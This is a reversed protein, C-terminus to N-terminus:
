IKPLPRRPPAMLLVLLSPLLTLNALLALAMALATLVGFLITPVFNSLCLVSFGVIITMSTFYMARGITGHSWAVALRVDGERAYEEQFRHLYHIADDVGIGVSIAAITITMMDLPIGAYGMIGIVSAASLVNPVLGLIAYRVSRLLVLFMLFTALLVYGITDVQSRFLQKLMRDFLVMMGTVEVAGPALGLQRVAFQEVDTALQARDFAPGTEIIRANLRLEGTAPSAYPEILESRLEEPLLGLVAAVEVSTLQEGDKFRAGLRDLTTLSMVKGVVEHQEVFRHLRALLDLRDRTFWYRQPYVDDEEDFFDDGGAFDDDPDPAQYPALKVVVDFPITGGLNADIFRMGQHIDTDEKFYEFFRNDMSVRSIGVTVVVAWILAFLTVGVYQWRALQSMVRTLSLEEGTVAAPRGPGLLMLVAPFFTFTVVFGVGIGLCMMWGFDEVPVIRAAMLSAFAAMTTLTNYLCPAFKSRMTGRVLDRVSLDPERHALERYRVILHITLSITIIALLSIFNSSVVTAPRQAAGLVGVSFLVTLASTGIPLLVWRVRRFFWGLMLMILFLVSSGFVALDNKVFAVMDAAIMPVGGIYLTGEGRYRDRVARVADILQQRRQVYGERLVDHRAELTELRTQDATDLATGAAEAEDQQQRLAARERDVALLEGDLALTVRLASARADDTILLDSFVPSSTLEKRALDLDVDPARLTRFGDALEALPLPPSELLPVDLISFVSAVGPLAELEAQLRALVDLNARELAAGAAGRGPQFTMLLFEDGGFRESVRLYAALDPDGQVVLTDSSADFSFRTAYYGAACALVAVLLLILRPFDLARLYASM